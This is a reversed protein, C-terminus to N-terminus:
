ERLDTGTFHMFVAQLSPRELSLCVVKAGTASVQQLIAPLEEAANQVAYSLSCPDAANLVHQQLTPACPRDLVLMLKGASGVSQQVLDAFSGIAVTNGADFIVIRDCYRQAEPMQHTTLLLSAGQERLTGLMEWIREFSQPDVGVTPEDLLIVSPRHLVSCAINLRRKMGGSFDKIPEAARASLGSWGLAWQVSDDLRNATLGHLAGFCRLNEAASLSQYLALEQPVVGLQRRKERAAPTCRELAVGDLVVEGRDAKVRGAITRILTSKGSGNPGLLGLCEGRRLAFSAGALAETAGFRKHVSNVTLIDAL